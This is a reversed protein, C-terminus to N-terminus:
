KIPLKITVKTGVNVKSEYNIYGNHALVIENSLAVGLGTGNKKTTFFLENIKELTEKDMGIGNDIIEIYAYKNKQYTKIDIIGKEIIAEASNKIINILVQKIKLYDINIYLEENNDFIIDIEKNSILLSLSDYVEEVLYNLDVLEKSITIKNLEKFDAMILLSRDIEKKIIDIYKETKEKEELNIMQLYGKCVALPNKIEHTLKFLSNKIQKDKELDKISLFIGSLGDIMKFLYLIFFSTIAFIIILWFIDIIHYYTENTKVYFLVSTFFGQIVADIIILKNNDKKRLLKYVVFFSIYKLITIITYFGLNFEFHCYCLLVLSLLVSLKDKRKIYSIIIPIDCFLLLENIRDINGYKLCLYMSTMISIELIPINLKNYNIEKYCIYVFYILIPFLILISNIIVNNFMEM